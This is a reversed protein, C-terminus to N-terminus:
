ELLNKVSQREMVRIPQREDVVLNSKEEIMKFLYESAKRAKWEFDQAVSTLKPSMFECDPLNDFGVVSMDYPVRLGCQKLGEIVGFAVIDSMCAVATYDGGGFAIDQGVQVASSYTSETYYINGKKFPVGAEKCADSFGKYREKIVGESTIDPTVLALKNHGKSILYRASLYGGRYDEIGINVIEEGPAYTDLFVIPMDIQSKIEPVEDKYIGLFFAGDVNWSSLLPVIERPDGVCRLMLYYDNGRIYRELAAIIHANYPNTFFTEDKGLYPVVVGILRSEKKVLSRAMVNPKYGTEKIISDIKAKTEDSVKSLKGNLVNSVTATSVGARKAIERINM